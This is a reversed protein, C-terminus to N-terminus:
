RWMQLLNFPDFFSFLAIIVVYYAFLYKMTEFYLYKESVDINFSSIRRSVLMFRAHILFTTLVIAVFVNIVYLHRIGYQFIMGTLFLVVIWSTEVNWFSDNKKYKMLSSFYLFPVCGFNILIGIIVIWLEVLSYSWVYADNAFAGLYNFSLLWVGVVVLAQSIYLGIRPLCRSEPGLNELGHKSM